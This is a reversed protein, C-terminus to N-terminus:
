FGLDDDISPLESPKTPDVIPVTEETSSSLIDGSLKIEIMEFEPSIYKKM